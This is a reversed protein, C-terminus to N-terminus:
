LYAAPPGARWWGRRRGHQLCPGLAEGSAAQACLEARCGEARCLGRAVGARLPSEAMEVPSARDATQKHKLM